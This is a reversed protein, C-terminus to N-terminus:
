QSQNTENGTENNSEEPEEEDEEIDNALWGWWPRSYKIVEGTEANLSYKIKERVPFIWFLRAKKQASFYYTANEGLELSENEFQARLRERIKARVHDPLLIEKTQNNRFVGFVKEESKYLTVNTSANVGKVQVITNGSRGAHITMTRTGNLWCKVTSGACVCAEPCEGLGVRLRNRAHIKIKKQGNNEIEVEIETENEDEDNDECDSPCTCEDEWEECIDNGCNSCVGYGGTAFECIEEGGVEIMRGSNPISDLGECCEILLGGNVGEQACSVNVVYETGCTGNYFDWELCSDNVNFICHTANLTYGMESCYSSAPNPLALVFGISALLLFAILFILLKKM